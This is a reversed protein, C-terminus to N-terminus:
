ERKEMFASFSISQTYPIKDEELLNKRNESYDGSFTCESVELIVNGGEIRYDAETIICDQSLGISINDLWLTNGSIPNAAFDYLTLAIYGETFTEMLVYNSDESWSVAEFCGWKPCKQAVQITKSQTNVLFKELCGDKTCGELYIYKENPSIELVPIDTFGIDEVLYNEKVGVQELPSGAYLIKGNLIEFIDGNDLRYKTSFNSQSSSKKDISVDGITGTSYVRDDNKEELRSKYDVKQNSIEKDVQINKDKDFISYLYFSTLGVVIVVVLYIIKKNM